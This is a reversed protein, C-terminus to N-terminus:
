ERHVNILNNKDRTYGFYKSQTFFSIKHWISPVFTVIVYPIIAYQSKLVKFCTLSEPHQTVLFNM